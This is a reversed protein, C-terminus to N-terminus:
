RLICEGDEQALQVIEYQFWPMSLVVKLKTQNLVVFQKSNMYEGTFGYVNDGIQLFKSTLGVLKFSIPKREVVFFDPAHSVFMWEDLYTFTAQGVQYEFVSRKPKM